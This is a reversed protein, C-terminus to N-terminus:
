KEQKAREIRQLIQQKLQAPLTDLYNQLEQKFAEHQDQEHPSLEQNNNRKNFERDEKAAMDGINQVLERNSMQKQGNLEGYFFLKQSPTLHELVPKVKAIDRELAAKDLDHQKQHQGYYKGLKLMQDALANGYEKDNIEGADRQRRLLEFEKSFDIKGSARNAEVERELETHNEAGKQMVKWLDSVPVDTKRNDKMSGWTNDISVVPPPGPKYDTIAVVHAEGNDGAEAGGSQSYYPEMKPNIRIMVPLKGSQALTKLQDDLAQETEVKTVKAGPGSYNDAAAIVVPSTQDGTIGRYAEVIQDENIDPEKKDKLEKRPTESTDYLREGTDGPSPKHQEYRREVGERQYALNVATVNFLQTAFSRDSDLPPHHVAEKDPTLSQADLRVQHGQTDTYEGSLAVQAVLNAAKSPEKAYVLSEMSTVNCTNHNGQDIIRPDAAQSMVQQALQVRREANVAGQQAEMLKGIEGYTKRVEEDSLGRQKARAEFHAMDAEFKARETPSKIKAEALDHLKAHAVRVDTQENVAIPKDGAKDTISYKGDATKQLVFNDEPRPGSSQLTYFGDPGPTRMTKRNDPEKYEIQQRGDPWNTTKIDHTPVTFGGDKTHGPLQLITGDKIVDNKLKNVHEIEKIYKEVTEKDAHPGLQKRAVNELSDGPKVIHYKAEVEGKVGEGLYPKPKESSTPQESKSEASRKFAASTKESYDTVAASLKLTYPSALMGPYAPSDHKALPDGISFDLPADVELAITRGDNFPRDKSPKYSLLESSPTKWYESADIHPKLPAEKPENFQAADNIAM